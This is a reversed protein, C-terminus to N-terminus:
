SHPMGFRKPKDPPKPRPPKRRHPVDWLRFGIDEGAAWKCGSPADGGDDIRNPGVSYILVGDALCRYRLPKGDFPDAPVQNLRNSVLAALSSPWGDHQRRYRELALAIVACRLRAQGKRVALGFKQYDPICNAVPKGAAAVAAALKREEDEQQHEPVDAIAVAQRLLPLVQAHQSRIWDRSYFGLLREKWIEHQPPPSDCWGMTLYRYASMPAAGTEIMELLQHIIGREGRLMIRLSPHATERELLQQLSILDAEDAEGQALIYELTQCARSVLRIRVMQSMAFPEDGVSRAVNLSSRCSLLAQQWCRRETALIAETMLIQALRDTTDLHPLGILAVPASPPYNLLHRGRERLAAPHATNLAFQASRIIKELQERQDARLREPPVLETLSLLFEEQDKSRRQPLFMVAHDVVVASNENDPLDERDAEVDEIRWRPDQHDMEEIAQQLRSATQRHYSSYWCSGVLILLLLALVLGRLWTRKGSRAPASGPNEPENLM